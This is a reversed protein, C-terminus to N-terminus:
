EVSNLTDLTKCVIDLITQNNGIHINRDSLEYRLCGDDRRYSSYPDLFIFGNKRAGEELLQNIYTTYVVREEDTGIFPLEGKENALRYDEYSTPPSVAMLIIAKYSTIQKCIKEIYAEVLTNCISTYERGLLLQKGIHARADIEGYSLIFVRDAHCQSPHFNVIGDKGVGHMTKSFFFLNRHPIKLGNLSLGAHSDGYISLFSDELSGTLTNFDLPAVRISRYETIDENFKLVHCHNNWVVYATTYNIFRFYGIGWTTEIKYLGNKDLTFKIYGQDWSFRKGIFAIETEQVSRIAGKEELLGRFFKSMRAYKHDFNGIPFSFHCICATDENDVELADEYLSVHPILATTDALGSMFTQYNIFPQDLAYPPAETYADIDKLIQGFLYKIEHTCPFLLTGSNMGATNGDILSLDFLQGGFNKNALTGSPVGYLKTIPFSFVPTVDRRIIIDTDLYLIKEYKEIEPWEFIHLRACAANFISSCPLCHLYCTVGVRRFM